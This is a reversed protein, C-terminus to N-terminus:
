LWKPRLTEFGPFVTFNVLNLVKLVKRSFVPGRVRFVTYILPYILVSPDSSSNFVGLTVRDKAIGLRVM